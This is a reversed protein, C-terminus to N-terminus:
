PHRPSLLDFRTGNPCFHRYGTDHAGSDLWRRCEGANKCDLCTRGAERLLEDILTGVQQDLGIREVMEKLLKLRRLLPELLQVRAPNIQDDRMLEELLAIKVDLLSPHAVAAESGPATNGDPPAHEDRNM